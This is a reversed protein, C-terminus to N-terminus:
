DHAPQLELLRRREAKRSGWNATKRHCPACLTRGNTMEYRLEPFESFRRIHDVHLKETSDCQICRYEDRELIKKRWNRYKRTLRESLNRITSNNRWNPNKAGWVDRVKVACRLSCHKEYGGDRSRWQPRFEDKCVPCITKDAKFRACGCSAPCRSISRRTFYSTPKSVSNGCDCLGRWILRHHYLGAEKATIVLRGFRQGMLNRANPHLKM